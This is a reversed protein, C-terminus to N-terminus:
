ILFIQLQARLTRAPPGHFAFDRGVGHLAAPGDLNLIGFAITTPPALRLGSALDPGGQGDHGPAGVYALEAHAEDCGQSDAIPSAGRRAAGSQLSSGYGTVRLATQMWLNGELCGCPCAALQHVLAAALGAVLWRCRRRTHRARTFM